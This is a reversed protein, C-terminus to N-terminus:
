EAVCYLLYVFCAIHLSSFISRSYRAPTKRVASRLRTAAALLADRATAHMNHPIKFVSISTNETFRKEAMRLGIEKRNESNPRKNMGM